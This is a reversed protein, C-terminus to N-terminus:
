RRRRRKANSIRAASQKSYGRRRLKEYLSPRKLSRYKRGPM